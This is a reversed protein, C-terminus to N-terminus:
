SPPTAPIPEPACSIAKIRAEADNRESPRAVLATAVILGQTSPSQLRLEEPLGADDDDNASIDALQAPTVLRIDITERLAARDTM